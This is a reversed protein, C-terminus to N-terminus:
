APPSSEDPRAIGCVATVSKEPILLYGSTLRLDPLADGILRIFHEQAELSFNGYGPSYRRTTRLGQGAYRARVGAHLGRMAAEVLFSGMRDLMFGAFPRGQSFYERGRTELAEGITVAMLEVTECGDLTRALDASAAAHPAFAKRFDQIGLTAQWTRPQALGQAESWLPRAQVHPPSDPQIRLYRLVKLPIDDM